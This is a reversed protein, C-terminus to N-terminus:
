SEADEDPRPSPVPPPRPLDADLLALLAAVQHALDPTYVSVVRFGKPTPPPPLM